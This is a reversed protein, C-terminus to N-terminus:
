VGMAIVKLNDRVYAAYNEDSDFENRKKFENKEEDPKELCLSIISNDSNDNDSPGETSSESNDSSAYGAANYGRRSASCMMLFHRM